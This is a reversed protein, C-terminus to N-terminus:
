KEVVKKIWVRIKDGEKYNGGKCTTHPILTMKSGSGTIKIEAYFSDPMENIMTKLEDEKMKHEGKLYITFSYIM